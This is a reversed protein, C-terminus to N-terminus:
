KVKEIKPKTLGVIKHIFSEQIGEIRGKLNTEVRKIETDLKSNLVNNRKNLESIIQDTDQLKKDMKRIITFLNESSAMQDRLLQLTRTNQENIRIIEQQLAKIKKNNFM